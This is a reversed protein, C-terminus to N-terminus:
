NVRPYKKLDEEEVIKEMVWGIGVYRGVENGIILVEPLSEANTYSMRRFDKYPLVECGSVDVEELFGYNIKKVCDETFQVHASNKLPKVVVGIGFGKKGRWRVLTNMKMKEMDVKKSGSFNM